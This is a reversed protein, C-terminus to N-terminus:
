RVEVLAVLAGAREPLSAEMRRGDGGVRVEHLAMAVDVQVGHAGPHNALRGLVRPRGVTPIRPALGVADDSRM